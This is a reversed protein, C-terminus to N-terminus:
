KTNGCVIAGGFKVYEQTRQFELPLRPLGSKLNEDPDIRHPSWKPVVDFHALPMFDTENGVFAQIAVMLAVHQCFQRFPTKKTEGGIVVIVCWPKRM